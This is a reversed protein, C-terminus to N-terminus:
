PFPQPPTPPPTGAETPSTEPLAAPQNQPPTQPLYTIGTAQRTPTTKVSQLYREPTRMLRLMEPYVPNEMFEGMWGAMGGKRRKPQTGMILGTAAMSAIEPDRSNLLAEFVKGEREQQLQAKQLNETEIEGRKDLYGTLFGELLSM